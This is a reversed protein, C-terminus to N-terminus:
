MELMSCVLLSGMTCHLIQLLLPYLVCYYICYKSDRLIGYTFFYLELSHVISLMVWMWFVQTLRSAIFWKSRMLLQQMTQCYHSCHRYSWTYFLVQSCVCCRSMSDKTRRLTTTFHLTPLVCMLVLMRSLCVWHWLLSVLSCSFFSRSYSQPFLFTSYMGCQVHWYDM